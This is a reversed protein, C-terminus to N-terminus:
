EGEANIRLTSLIEDIAADDMDKHEVDVGHSVTLVFDGCDCFWERWHMDDEDFVHHWADLGALSTKQLTEAHLSQLLSQVSGGPEPLLPTIEILSVNDEDIILITEEDQEARWETPLLVSWLDCSLERM